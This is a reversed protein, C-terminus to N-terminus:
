LTESWQSLILPYLRHEQVLVRQALREPTDDPCVKIKAQGLIAGGDVKAVVHHVTCGSEQDGSELVKKHVHMGWMGEGGHRPLLSPHINVMRGKWEELVSGSLISLWGALAVADINKSKLLSNLEESLTKKWERRDLLEAEIQAEHARELAYCPRDAVLLVPQFCGLKKQRSADILAQFNSGGGSSLIALRLM